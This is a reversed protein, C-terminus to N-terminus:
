GFLRVVQFALVAVGLVRRAPSSGRVVEDVAWVLLAGSGVTSLTDARDQDLIGTWGVVVSVLWVALAPNPWQALVVRGESDSVWWRPSLPGAPTSASGHVDTPTSSPM